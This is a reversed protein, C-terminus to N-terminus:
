IQTGRKPRDGLQEQEDPLKNWQKPRWNLLSKWDWNKAKKDELMIQEFDVDINGLIAEVERMEEEEKRKMRAQHSRYLLAGAVVGALLSCMLLVIVIPVVASRHRSTSESPTKTTSVVVAKTTTTIGHGSSHSESSRVRVVKNEEETVEETQSTDSHSSESLTENSSVTDTTGNTSSTKQQHVRVWEQIAPSDALVRAVQGERELESQEGEEEEEELKTVNVQKLAQTRITVAQARACEKCQFKADFEAPVSYVSTGAEGQFDNTCIDITGFSDDSDPWDAEKLNCTRCEGDGIFTIPIQEEGWEYKHETHKVDGLNIKGRDDAVCSMYVEPKSGKLGKEHDAHITMERLYVEHSVAECIFLALVSVAALWSGKQTPLALIAQVLPAAVIEQVKM